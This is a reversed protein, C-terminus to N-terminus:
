VASPRDSASRDAARWVKAAARTAAQEAPVARTRLAAERLESPYWRPARPLPYVPQPLRKERVARWFGALSLGVTRASGRPDLPFETPDM